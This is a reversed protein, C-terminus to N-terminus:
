YFNTTLVFLELGGTGRFGAGSLRQGRQWLGSGGAVPPPAAVSQGSHRSSMASPAPSPPSFELWGKALGEAPPGPLKPCKASSSSTPRPPM